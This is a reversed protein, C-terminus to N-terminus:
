VGNEAKAVNVNSRYKRREYKRQIVSINNSQYKAMIILWKM